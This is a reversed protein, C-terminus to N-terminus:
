QLDWYKVYLITEIFAGEVHHVELTEETLDEESRLKNVQLFIYLTVFCLLAQQDM